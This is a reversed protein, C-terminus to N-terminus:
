IYIRKLIIKKGTEAELRATLRAAQEESLPSATIAEAVIIGRAENYFRAYEKAIGNFLKVSHHECLILILNRVEECVSSFAERILSCKEPVSLAPTDALSSYEPNESLAERCANVDELVRDSIGMEESLMFLAKAYEEHATM